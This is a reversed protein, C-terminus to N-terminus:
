QFDESAFFFLRCSLVEIWKWFFGSKMVLFFDLFEVGSLGNDKVLFSWLGNDSSEM